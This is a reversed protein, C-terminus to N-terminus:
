QACRQVEGEGEAILDEETKIRIGAFGNKPVRQVRRKDRSKIIAQLDASFTAKSKIKNRNDACMQAYNKYLDETPTFMKADKADRTTHEDLWCRLPDGEVVMRTLLTRLINSTPLGGADLADVGAQICALAFGPIEPRLRDLLGPDVEPLDGPEGPDKHENPFEVVVLRAAIAGSADSFRPLKNSTMILKPSWENDTTALKRM